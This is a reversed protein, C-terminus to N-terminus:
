LKAGLKKSLDGVTTFKLVGIKSFNADEFSVVKEDKLSVPVGTYCKIRSLAESGSARKYPIMGRISRKVIAHPQRHVFPGKVPNGRQTQTKFRDFVQTPSGTFIASECNIVSVEEGLLAAKAIKTAMRGVIMDTADVVIM